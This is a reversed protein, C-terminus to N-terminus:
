LISLELFPGCREEFMSLGEEFCGELLLFVVQRLTAKKNKTKRTM